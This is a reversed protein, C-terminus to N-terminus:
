FKISHGASSKTANARAAKLENRNVIEIQGRRYKIFRRSQLTQAAVTVSSRRLGLMDALREQSFSITDSEGQESLLLLLRSLRSTADHVSNCL